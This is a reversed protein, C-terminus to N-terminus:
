GVQSCHSRSVALSAICFFLFMFDITRSDSFVNKKTTYSDPIFSVLLQVFCFRKDELWTVKKALHTGLNSKWDPVSLYFLLSSQRYLRMLTPFKPHMSPWKKLLWEERETVITNSVWLATMHFTLMPHLLGPPLGSPPRAAHTVTFYNRCNCQIRKTWLLLRIDTTTRKTDTLLLNQEAKRIKSCWGAVAMTIEVSNRIPLVLFIYKCNQFGVRIFGSDQAPNGSTGQSPGRRTEPQERLWRWLDTGSNSLSEKAPHCRHGLLCHVLDSHMIYVTYARM